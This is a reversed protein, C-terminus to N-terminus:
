FIGFPSRPLYIGLLVNFIVYAVISFIIAVATYIHTKNKGNFIFLEIELFIFTSFIYGIKTFLVAYLFCNLITSIIKVTNKDFNIKIREKEEKKNNAKSLKILENIMLIFGLISISIGLIAPFIKPELARGVTANPLVLTMFGYVLGIAITVISSILTVTM